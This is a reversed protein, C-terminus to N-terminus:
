LDKVHLLGAISKLNLFLLIRGRVSKGSGDGAIESTVHLMIKSFSGCQDNLSEVTGGM